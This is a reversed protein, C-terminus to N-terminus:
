LNCLALKVKKLVAATVRRELDATFKCGEVGQCVQCVIHPIATMNLPTDAEDCNFDFRTLSDMTSKKAELMRAYKIQCIGNMRGHEADEEWFLCNCCIPDIKTAIKFARVFPSKDGFSSVAVM